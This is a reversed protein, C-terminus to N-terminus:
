DRMDYLEKDNKLPRVKGPQAKVLVVEHPKVLGLQERAIREIEDNTSLKLEEAKLAEAEVSLQNLRDKLRTVEQKMERIQYFQQGASLSFAFFIFLLIFITAKRRGTRKNLRKRRSVESGGKDLPYPQYDM